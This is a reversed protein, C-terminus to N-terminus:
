PCIYISHRVSQATTVTLASVSTSIDICSCYSSLASMAAVPDVTTTEDQRKKFAVATPTTTQTVTTTDIAESVLTRM